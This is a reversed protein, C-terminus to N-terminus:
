RSSKTRRPRSILAVDTTQLRRLRERLKDKPLDYGLETQVRALEAAWHKRVKDHMKLTTAKDISVVMAKGNFGRGLFHRVIRPRHPSQWLNNVESRCTRNTYFIM